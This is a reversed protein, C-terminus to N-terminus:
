YKNVIFNVSGEEFLEGYPQRCYFAMICIAEFLLPNSKVHTCTHTIHTQDFHFSKKWVSYQGAVCTVLKLTRFCSCTFSVVSPFESQLSFTTYTHTHKGLVCHSSEATLPFQFGFEQCMPIRFNCLFRMSFCSTM